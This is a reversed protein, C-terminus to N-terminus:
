SILRFDSPMWSNDEPAPGFTADQCVQCMASITYEKASLADTFTTAPGNCLNCINEELSATFGKSTPNLLAAVADAAAATRKTTM